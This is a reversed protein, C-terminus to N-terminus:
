GAALEGLETDVLSSADVNETSTLLGAGRWYQQMSDILDLEFGLQPDFVQLPGSVIAEAPLGTAEAIIAVIEADERYDGQLDDASARYLARLLAVATDRDDEVLTPGLMMVGGSGLALVPDMDGLVVYDGSALQDTLLPASSIAAAVAGNALAALGDPFTLNQVDVDDITLDGQLLLQGLYYGALAGAGGAVAVKQGALDAISQVPGDKPVVYASLPDGPTSEGGGGVIKVDLGNDVGNFYGASLGAFAGDLQGNAVLAQTDQGTGGMTIEVELGEDEFYGRAQAVFLPAWNLTPLTSLTVHTLEAGQPNPAAGLAGAGVTSALLGAGLAAALTRVKM